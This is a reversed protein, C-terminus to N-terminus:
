LGKIVFSKRHFPTLGYARIAEIHAKTGYGQHSEFGYQPYDAALRLLDRDKSVKALMSAASVEAVSADAKVQTEIGEVGFTCNGDYLYRDATIHSKIERLAYALSRSLGDRDITAADILVIFFESNATIVDFLEARKSSSLKKSDTLGSLGKLGATERHLVVGAVALAGALTGRGAEDIGCLKM